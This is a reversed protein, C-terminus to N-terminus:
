PKPEVVNLGLAELFPTWMKIPERWTPIWAGIWEAAGGRYFAPVLRDVARMYREVIPDESKSAPARTDPPVAFAYGWMDALALTSELFTVHDSLVREQTASAHKAAALAAGKPPAHEVPNPGSGSVFIRYRDPDRESEVNVKDPYARAWGRRYDILAPGLRKGVSHQTLEPRTPDPDLQEVVARYKGAPLKAHIGAPGDIGRSRDILTAAGDDEIRFLSVAFRKGATVQSCAITIWQEHASNFEYGDTDGRAASGEVGFFADKSATREAHAESYLENLPTVQTTGDINSTKIKTVERGFSDRWGGSEVGRAFDTPGLHGAAGLMWYLPSSPGVFALPNGALLEVNHEGSEIVAQAARGRDANAEKSFLQYPGLNGFARLISASGQFNPYLSSPNMPHDDMPGYISLPGWLGLPGCHDLSRRALQALRGFSQKFAPDVAAGEAREVDRIIREIERTASQVREITFVPAGRGATKGAALGVLAAHVAQNADFRVVGPQAIWARVLAEVKKTVRPEFQTEGLPAELLPARVPQGGVPPPTEAVRATRSTGAVDSRLGTGSVSPKDAAATARRM